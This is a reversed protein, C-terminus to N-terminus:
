AQTSPEEMVTTRDVATGESLNYGIEKTSAPKPIQPSRPTNVTVTVTVQCERGRQQDLM